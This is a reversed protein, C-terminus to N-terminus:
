IHILSVPLRWGCPPLTFFLDGFWAVPRSFPPVRSIRTPEFSRPLLPCLFIAGSTQQVCPQSAPLRLVCFLPLRWGRLPLAYFLDDFRAVPRSFSPVSSIRTHEFSRPLLPCPFVAGSALQVCPRTVPLRLVCCFTLRWGRPPLTYFLSGAWAVPRSFSPVRSIRTPEFIRLLMSPSFAPPPATHNNHRQARAHSRDEVQPKAIDTGTQQAVEASIKSM